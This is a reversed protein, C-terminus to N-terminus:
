QDIKGTLIWTSATQMLNIKESVTLSLPLQAVGLIRRLIETGAFGALLGPDFGAPPIYDSIISEILGKEQEALIMHAVMVGLDFEAYGKFGFEPDIIKIGTASNLWSGPFYDGHILTPGEMLYYKGLENVVKKLLIHKKFPISAKSLGPQIRDLDLGNNQMFPIKFIYEYNLRRMPSNFSFSPCELHHLASLYSLLDKKEGALLQKGRDYLYTFDASKGLDKYFVIFNQRDHGLIEPSHSRLFPDESIISFYEVEVLNREASADIHPYKEVWPRAQKLILSRLNTRVRIVLNMNGDGPKELARVYEADLLWNQDSLYDNIKRVSNELFFKGPFLSNFRNKLANM